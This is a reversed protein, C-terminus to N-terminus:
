KVKESTSWMISGIHIEISVDFLVKVMLFARSLLTTTSRVYSFILMCIIYHVQM